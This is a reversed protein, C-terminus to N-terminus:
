RHRRGHPRDPRRRRPQPRHGAGARCRDERPRRRARPAVVAQGPSFGDNRNWEVPDIGKGSGNAPMWEPKFAVRRGTATSADPVTYADSPFPLLCARPDFGCGSARTEPFSVGAAALDLEGLADLRLFYGWAQVEVVTAPRGVHRQYSAGVMQAIHEDSRYLVRAAKSPAWGRALRRTWQQREFRSPARDVILEFLHDVIHRNSGGVQDALAIGVDEVRTGGIVRLVWRRREARTPSRDLLSRYVADVRPGVWRENRVLGYAATGASLGSDLSTGLLEIEDRTPEGGYLAVLMQRAYTSTRPLAPIAQPDSAAAARTVPEAASSPSTPTAWAAAGAFTTSLLATAAAAAVIARRRM